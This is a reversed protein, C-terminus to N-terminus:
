SVADSDEFAISAEFGEVQEADKSEPMTAMVQTQTAGCVPSLDVEICEVNVGEKIADVVRKARRIPIKNLLYPITLGNKIKEGEKFTSEKIKVIHMYQGVNNGKTIVNFGSCKEGNLEQMLLNYDEDLIEMYYKQSIMSRGVKVGNVYPTVIRAFTILSEKEKVPAAGKSAPASKKTSKNGQNSM